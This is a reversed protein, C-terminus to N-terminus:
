RLGKAAKRAVPFSVGYEAALQKISPGQMPAKGGRGRPVWRSRIDLAQEDSLKRDKRKKTVVLGPLGVALRGAITRARSATVKAAVAQPRRVGRRSDGINKCHSESLRRGTLRARMKKVADAPMKLGLWGPEAIPKVNYDPQMLDMWWQEVAYLEHKECAQIREAVFAGEGYKAWAHALPKNHHKGRRLDGRHNIIRKRIHVASGIYFSGSVVNRIIYVGSEQGIRDDIKM